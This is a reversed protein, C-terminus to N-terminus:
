LTPDRRFIAQKGADIVVFVFHVFVTSFEFEWINVSFCMLFVGTLCVAFRYFM